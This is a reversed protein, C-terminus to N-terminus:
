SQRIVLMGARTRVARGTLCLVTQLYPEPKTLEDLWTELETAGADTIVYRKRDSRTGPRAQGVVTGDRGMRALSAYVRCLLPKGHGFSSDYDRELDYGHRDRALHAGTRYSPRAARGPAPLAALDSADHTMVTRNTEEV